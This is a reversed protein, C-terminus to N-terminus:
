ASISITIQKYGKLKWDRASLSISYNGSPRSQKVIQFLESSSKDSRVVMVYETSRSVSMNGVANKFESETEYINFHAYKGSDEDYAAKKLAYVPQSTTCTNKATQAFHDTYFESDPVLFFVYSLNDGYSASATPDDWTVDVNYWKGDIKVQNWAHSSTVGSTNTATGTVRVADLGARECLILFAKSYGDCVAVRTDFLGEATFSTSPVNGSQVGAKDYAVNRVLWDHIARAKDFETMGPMVIQALVADAKADLAKDSVTVVFTKSAVNGASDKVKILFTVKGSFSVPCRIVPSESYSYLIKWTQSSGSKFSYSYTYNGTGGGAKAHLEVSENVSISTSSVYSSNVLAPVVKLALTKQAIKGKADRVKMLFQYEGVSAPKFTVSTTESYTKVTNWQTDNPKQYYYAYSYNGYGGKASGKLTVSSGKTITDKSLKGTSELPDLVKLMFDKSKIVGTSDKQKVRIVYTTASAPTIAVSVASSFGKATSWKDSSSKKYYFAYKMGATSSKAAYVTVSEGKIISTRSLHAESLPPLASPATSEEFAAASVTLAGGFLLLVALMVSLIRPVLKKMAM